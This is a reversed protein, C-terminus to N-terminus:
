AKPNTSFFGLRLDVHRLQTGFIKAREKKDTISEDEFTTKRQLDQPIQFIGWGDPRLVRFLEQM